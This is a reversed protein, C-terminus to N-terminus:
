PRVRRRRVEAGDQIYWHSAALMYNLWSRFQMFDAPYNKM